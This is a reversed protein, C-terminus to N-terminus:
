IHVTELSGALGMCLMVLGEAVLRSHRGLLTSMRAYNYMVFAGPYRAESSPHASEAGPYASEAGPREMDGCESSRVEPFQVRVQFPDNTAASTDCSMHVWTRVKSHTDSSLLEFKVVGGAMRGAMEQFQKGPFCTPMDGRGRSGRRGGVGGRVRLRTDMSSTTFLQCRITDRGVIEPDFTLM